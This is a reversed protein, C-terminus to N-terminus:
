GTSLRERLGPDRAAAVPFTARLTAGGGPTPEAVIRGGHREVIRQCTALGIGHGARRGRADDTSPGATPGASPDACPDAAPDAASTFMGFVRHRHAPDIGRGNDVVALEWGGPRDAVRVEVRCPRGPHRYRVSNGVLNQLLQRLLVPDARVHAATGAGDLGTETYAIEVAGAAAGLDEVVHSLVDRVAVPRAAFGTSDARAHELVAEILGQMRRAARLATGTWAAGQAGLAEAHVDLVLELYGIVSTLPAALDHSAVAALNALDDNSRRLREGAEELAHIRARDATIDQMAVVAGIVAGAEDHLARGTCTVRVPDADRPAIVIEVGRVDEGALARALPVDAAALPTRGDAAHLGYARAHETSPMRPDPALGHIRRATPNFVTLSGRADCAVVAVGVSDLLAATFEERTELETLTHQLLHRQEEVEAVLHAQDRHRRRRELLAMVVGALDRLREVQEPTLTRPTSDFVCLGGLHHGDPTILPASAYFVVEALRGDVWASDGYRADTRADPVVVVDPDGLNRACLSESRACDGGVFGVASLQCQRQSDILNVTATPVGALAAAIRVVADLEPDAPTDLLDYGHLAALRLVEVGPAPTGPGALLRPVRDAAPTHQRTSTM